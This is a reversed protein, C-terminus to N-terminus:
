GPLTIECFSLSENQLSELLLTAEAIDTNTLFISVLFRESTCQKKVSKLTTARLRCCEQNSDWNPLKEM